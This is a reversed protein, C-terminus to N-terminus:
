TCTSPRGGAEGIELLAFDAGTRDLPGASKLVRARQPGSLGPGTVLISTGGAIVHQNTVILGPGVVFGSGVGMGGPRPALVLM